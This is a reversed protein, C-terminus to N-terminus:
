ALVEKSEDPHLAIVCAHDLLVQYGTMVPSTNSVEATGPLGGERVVHDAIEPVEGRYLSVTPRVQCTCVQEVTDSRADSLTGAGDGEAYQESALRAPRSQGSERRGKGLRDPPMPYPMRAAPRPRAASRGSRQPCPVSPRVGPQCTRGPRPRGDASGPASCCPRDMSACDDAEGLRAPGPAGVPRHRGPPRHRGAIRGTRTGRASAVPSGPPARRRPGAACPATGTVSAAVEGAGSGSVATGRHGASVTACRM